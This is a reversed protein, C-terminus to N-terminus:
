KGGERYFNQVVTKFDNKDMELIASERLFSEPSDSAHAVNENISHAYMKRITAWRAKTPDTAGLVGRIASIARPGRYLLALCRTKGPSKRERASLVNAPDIGSMTKIIRIFEDRAKAVKLIDALRAIEEPTIKFDMEERLLTELSGRIREKMREPLAEAVPAYFQEAQAVSMQVLKAGVIKLGTRSIIDMANGAVSSPGEFNGPKLMVLTTEPKLAPDFRCCNQLVGGDTDSHRAWLQLTKKAEAAEPIILVAPEFYRIRGQQDTIFDGYTDRVLEGLISDRSIPGVVHDRIEAIANEGRFLLVMVRPRPARDSHSVWHERVYDRIHERVRRAEPSGKIEILRCHKEILERSPSFMRAAALECNTLSFLRALVGGTRSKEITYPNIWVAALQVAM